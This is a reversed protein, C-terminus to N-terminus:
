GRGAGEAGRRAQTLEQVVREELEELRRRALVEEPPSVLLTQLIAEMEAETAGVAAYPTFLQCQDRDARLLGGATAAFREGDAAHILVLGAEVAVAMPETRPRIGVLGTETPVRVSSTPGHFVTGHPTVISFQLATASAGPTKTREGEAM